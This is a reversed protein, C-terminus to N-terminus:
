ADETAGAGDVETPVDTRELERAETLVLAKV